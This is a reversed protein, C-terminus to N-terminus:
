EQWKISHKAVSHLFSYILFRNLVTTLFMTADLIAKILFPIKELNFYSLLAAMKRAVLASLTLFLYEDACNYLQANMTSM